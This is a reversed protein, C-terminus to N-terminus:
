VAQVAMKLLMKVVKFTQGEQVFKTQQEIGIHQNTFSNSLGLVCLFLFRVFCYACMAGLQRLQVELTKHGNRDLQVAMISTAASM